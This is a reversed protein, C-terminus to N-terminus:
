SSLVLISFMIFLYAVQLDPFPDLVGLTIFWHILFGTNWYYFKKMEICNPKNSTYILKMNLCRGNGILFIHIWFLSFICQFSKKKWESIM